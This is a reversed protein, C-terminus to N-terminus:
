NFFKWKLFKLRCYQGQIYVVVPLLFQIFLEYLGSYITAGSVEINNTMLFQRGNAVSKLCIWLIFSNEAKAWAWAIMVDYIGYDNSRGRFWSKCLLPVLGGLSECCRRVSKYFLVTRPKQEYKAIMVDYSGYDNSRGRFGVKLWCRFLGGLIQLAKWVSEGLSVTKPKQEYEAIM